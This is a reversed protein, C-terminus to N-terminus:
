VCTPEFEMCAISVYTLTGTCPSAAGLPYAFAETAYVGSGQRLVSLLMGTCTDLVMGASIVAFCCLYLMGATPPLRQSPMDHQRSSGGAPCSLCGLGKCSVQEHSVRAMAQLGSMQWCMLRATPM